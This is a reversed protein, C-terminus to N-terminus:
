ASPKDRTATRGEVQSDAAGALRMATETSREIEQPTLNYVPRGRDDLRRRRCEALRVLQSHNAPV